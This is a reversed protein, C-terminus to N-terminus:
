SHQPYHYIYELVHAMEREVEPLLGTLALTDNAKGAQELKDCLDGLVLAGIARSSSKLSHAIKSITQADDKSWSDKIMLAKEETSRQYVQLLDNITVADDGVLEKLVGIDVTKKREAQKSPLDGAMTNVEQTTLWKDLIAKLKYLLVPKSLYDDMGEELCHTEIGQFTNATLAIIPFPTIGKQESRIAATLQYGDIEPMQIDTLLLAYSKSRWLELAQRGDNVIDAKYGLLALQERIVKQNVENDEAVLILRNQLSRKEQEGPLTQNINTHLSVNPTALRGAALAVTSALSSRKLVNADIMFHAETIQRPQRRVGRGVTVFRIEHQSWRGAAAILEEIAPSQRGADVVWICLGPPYLSSMSSAIQITSVCQAKAGDSTLYAMFDEALGGANGIVLCNLGQLPLLPIATGSDSHYEFPLLVTFTAGRGLVSQVSIEGGMLKVLQSCIALGLGSGGFRRATSADAQTFASFLKNQAETAIGIGNDTVEFRVSVSSENQEVLTARVAVRGPQQLSSFKIANSVLNTLIQRLRIDDGVVEKPLAPDSFITLEIGKAQALSDVIECTQEIIAPFCLQIAEIELKGSEIKSFDLIDNIVEMLSFGSTRILELMEKQSQQLSTETMVDIMGIVGNLPTRIEHSMTALFESKAQNAREAEQQAQELEATRQKVRKELHKNLIYLDHTREQVQQELDLNLESLQKKSRDLELATLKQQHISLHIGSMKSPNGSSDYELVRGRSKIWCWEGTKHRMRYEAFYYETTGALNAKLKSLVYPKDEPHVRDEWDKYNPMLEPITYGLIDALRGGSVLSNTTIDWDWYGIEGADIVRKLLEEKRRLEEETHIRASIDISTQILKIVQNKGNFVPTLMFDVTCLKGKSRMLLDRRVPEGKCATEIDRMIQKQSESLKAFWPSRTFLKGIVDQSRLDCSTIATKNVRIIRGEPTLEGVFCPMNNFIDDLNKRAQNLEETRSKVRRLIRISQGAAVTVFSTTILMILVSAIIYLKMIISQGSQWPERRWTDIMLNIDGLPEPHSRWDPESDVHLPLRTDLLVIPETSRNSELVLQCVLGLRDAQQKMISAIDNLYIIGSAFGLFSNRREDLTALNPDLGSHYVPMFFRWGDEQHEAVDYLTSRKALVNLGNEMAYQLKDLTDAESGFDYGRATFYGSNTAILLIPYYRARDGAPVLRGSHDVEMIALESPGLPQADAEFQTRRDQSVLPSWALSDIIGDDLSRKTFRMFEASTVAESSVILDAVGRVTALQSKLHNKLAKHLSESSYTTKENAEAQEASAILNFGTVIFVAILLPLFLTQWIHTKIEPTSRSLIPFILPAAILIGLSNAAWLTLWNGTLLETPEGLFLYMATICISVSLACAMPGALFLAKVVKGESVIGRGRQALPKIWFVGLVAQLLAGIATVATLIVVATTIEGDSVAIKHVLDTSFVGLWVAPWYRLGWRLLCFLAWGAPLWIPVAYAPPTALWMGFEALVFYVLILGVVRAWILSRIHRNKNQFSINNIVSVPQKNMFKHM